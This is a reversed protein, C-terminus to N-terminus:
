LDEGERGELARAREIEHSGNRGRRRRRKRRRKRGTCVFAFMLIHVTDEALLSEGWLTKETDAFKM